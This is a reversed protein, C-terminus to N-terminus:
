AGDGEGPEEALGGAQRLWRGPEWMSVLRAILTVLFVQGMLMETVSFMKGPQYAPVLNGYGTTTLTTM